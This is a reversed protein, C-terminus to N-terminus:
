LHVTKGSVGMEGLLGISSHCQDIFAVSHQNSSCAAVHRSTRTVDRSNGLADAEKGVLLSTLDASGRSRQPPAQTEM